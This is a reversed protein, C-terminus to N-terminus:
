DPPRDPRPFSRWPAPQARTRPEQSLSQSTDSRSSRLPPASDEKHRIECDRFLRGSARRFTQDAPLLRTAPTSPHTGADTTGLRCSHRRIVTEDPLSAPSSRLSTRALRWNRPCAPFLPAPRDTRSHTGISLARQIPKRGSTYDASNHKAPASEYESGSRGSKAGGGLWLADSGEHGFVPRSGVGVHNNSFVEFAVVLVI